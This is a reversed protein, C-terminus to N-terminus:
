LSDHPLEKIIAEAGKRISIDEQGFIVTMHEGAKLTIPTQFNIGYVTEVVIPIGFVRRFFNLFGQTGNAPVEKKYYIM